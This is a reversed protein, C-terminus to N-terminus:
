SIAAARARWPRASSADERLDELGATFFGAGLGAFFRQNQAAGMEACLKEKEARLLFGFDILYNSLTPPESGPLEGMARADLNALAADHRAFRRM